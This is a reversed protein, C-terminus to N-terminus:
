RERGRIWAALALAALSAALVGLELSNQERAPKLETAPAEELAATESEAAPAQRAEWVESSASEVVAPM